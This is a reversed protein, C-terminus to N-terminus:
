KVGWMKITGSEVNGSAFMFSIEDIATTTNIYGATWNAYNADESYYATGRWIFHKVYTTSAPNFLHLIGALSEDNGSGVEASLEQYATGEAQDRSADYSIGISGGTGGSEPHYTRFQTSTITENFGSEGAGNVQFLFETSDTAPHINYFRFIYEGYTSDIGSTIDVTADDSATTTSLLVVDAGAASVGATGMLAAKFAGLPMIKDEHHNCIQELLLATGSQEVM